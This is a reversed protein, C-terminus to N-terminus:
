AVSSEGRVVPDDIEGAAAFHFEYRVRTDGRTGDLEATVATVVDYVQALDPSRLSFVIQTLEPALNETGRVAIASRKLSCQSHLSNM